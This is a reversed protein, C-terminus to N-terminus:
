PRFFRSTPLGKIRRVPLNAFIARGINKQAQILIDDVSMGITASLDSFLSELEGAELFTIQSRTKTRDTSIITGDNRWDFFRAFKVPFDYESCKRM